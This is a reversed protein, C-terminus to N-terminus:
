APVSPRYFGLFTDNENHTSLPRIHVVDGPQPAEIIKGDGIYMAVHGDWVVLDGPALNAQSVREGVDQAGSFHDLSVGEQAYSWMTLGSCDFGQGPDADAYIYPVGLQSLAARVAGAAKANPAQVSGMGSPLNVAVGTGPNVPPATGANPDASATSTGSSPSTGGTSGSSGSSGSSGAASAASTTGSEDDVQDALRRLRGASDKDAQEVATQASDVATAWGRLVAEAHTLQARTNTQLQAVAAALASAGGTTGFSTAPVAAAFEDGIAGAQGAEGTIAGAFSELLGLDYSFADAAM